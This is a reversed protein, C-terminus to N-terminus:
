ESFVPPFSGSPWRHPHPLNPSWRLVHICSGLGARGETAWVEGGLIDVAGRDPSGDQPGPSAPIWEAAGVQDKRAGGEGAAQMEAWIALGPAVRERYKRERGQGLFVALSWTSGSGRGPWGGSEVKEQGPQLQPDPDRPM